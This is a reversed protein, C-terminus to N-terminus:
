FSVLTVELLFTKNKPQLVTTLGGFRLGTSYFVTTITVTNNYTLKKAVAM